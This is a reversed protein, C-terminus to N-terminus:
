DAFGKFYSPDVAFTPIPEGERRAKACKILYDNVLNGVAETLSFALGSQIVTGLGPILKTLSTALMTGAVQSIMPAFYAKVGEETFGYLVTLSAIMGYQIGTIWLSDSLPIPDAAAVAAAVAATHIITQAKGQKSELDILQANMIAEKYADPMMKITLNLLKKLQKQSQKKKESEIAESYGSTTSKLSDDDDDNLFDLAEYPEPIYVFVPIIKEKSINADTLTKIMEELQKKSTRDVQTIITIINKFSKIFDTDSETVRALPGHITYWIMHISSDPNNEKAKIWKKTEETLESQAKDHEFGKSDWVNINPNKYKEFGQTMPKGHGILKDDVTDKGFLSQIISTKGTGTYGCVLINPVAQKEKEKIYKELFYKFGESSSSTNM